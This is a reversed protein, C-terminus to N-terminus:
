VVQPAHLQRRRISGPWAGSDRSAPTTAPSPHSSIPLGGAAWTAPPKGFFKQISIGGKL